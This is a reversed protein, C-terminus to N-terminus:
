SPPWLISSTTAAINLLDFSNLSITGEMLKAHVELWRECLARLIEERAKSEALLRDMVITEARVGPPIV